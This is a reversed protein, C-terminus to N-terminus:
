HGRPISLFPYAVNDDKHANTKMMTTKKLNHGRVLNNAFLPEANKLMSLVNPHQLIIDFM